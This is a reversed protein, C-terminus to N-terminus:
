SILQYLILSYEENTGVKACLEIMTGDERRDSYNNWFKYRTM